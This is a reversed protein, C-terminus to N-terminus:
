GSDNGAVEHHAVVLHGGVVEAVVLKAVTADGGDRLREVPCLM